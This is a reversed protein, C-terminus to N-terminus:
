LLTTKVLACSYEFYEFGRASVSGFGEDLNCSLTPYRQLELMSTESRFDTKERMYRASVEFLQM